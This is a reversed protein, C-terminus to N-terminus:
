SAYPFSRGERHMRGTCLSIGKRKKSWEHLPECAELVIAVRDGRHLLTSPEVNAAASAANLPRHSVTLVKPHWYCTGKESSDDLSHEHDPPPVPSRDRDVFSHGLHFWKALNCGRVMRAAVPADDHNHVLVAIRM